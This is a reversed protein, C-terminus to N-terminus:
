EPHINAAKVVGSWQALDQQFYAEFDAAKGPRASTAGAVALAQGFDQLVLVKNVEGILHEVVAPPTGRPALLGLWQQVEFKDMGAEAMTPADPLDPLRQTSTVALARVKGAKIQQLAIAANAFQFDILGAIQSNMAAPAGTYPVHLVNLNYRSKFLEGMLHAPSGVGASGYSLKGPQNRAAKILDQVSRITSDPNVVLIAPAYAVVAVRELDKSANFNMKTRLAVNITLASTTFLLTYGDPPAKAVMEAGINGGAGLKNDIVLPQGLASQMRQGLQRAAVDVLGGAPWPVVLRIPKAPYTQAGATVAGLLGVALFVSHLTRRASNLAVTKM